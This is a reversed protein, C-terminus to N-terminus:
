HYYLQRIRYSLVEATWTSDPHNVVADFAEDLAEQSGGLNLKCVVARDLAAMLEHVASPTPQPLDSM